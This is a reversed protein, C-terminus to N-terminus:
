IWNKKIWDDDYNHILNTADTFHVMKISEAFEGDLYFPEYPNLDSHWNRQIIHTAGEEYKAVWEM